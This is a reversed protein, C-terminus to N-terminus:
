VAAIAAGMQRVAQEVMPRPMALNFRVCRRGVVGCASGDTIAVKAKERFFEGLDGDLPTQTFDLWALYTGEPMAYGVGPLHEEILRGLLKRNGDLYDIVEDLWARGDNYAAVSAVVGLTSAGHNFAGAVKWIEADADNSLVLQACKLGAINWAKSAAIATVTHGAAVENVSAYPVHQSGAYVLPAHIEDSFVRGNHRAVVESIAEMEDRCLVKGIPNHPNCLVLLGGGDAFARDLADLDYSWAGDEMRLPVEIVERGLMSPLSLFPMYAPTPVIIKSGARSFHEITYQMGTLVDAIVSVREAPVDWGAVDRYWSATAEQLDTLAQAPVYGFFNAEVADRLAQQVAPATGYDMEAVFAGICDPYSTWKRGLVGTLQEATLADFTEAIAVM